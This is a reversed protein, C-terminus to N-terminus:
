DGVFHVLSTDFDTDCDGDFDSGFISRNISRVSDQFALLLGCQTNFTGICVYVRVCSSAPLHGTWDLVCLSVWFGNLRVLETFDKKSSRKM